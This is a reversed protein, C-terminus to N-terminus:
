DEETMWYLLWKRLEPARNFDRTDEKSVGVEVDYDLAMLILTKKPTTRLISKVSSPYGRRALDRLENMREGIRQKRYEKRMASLKAREEKTYPNLM